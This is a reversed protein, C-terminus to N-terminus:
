RVAGAGEAQAVLAARSEPDVQPALLMGDIAPIPDSIVIIDGAALGKKIVVFDTQSFAVEVPRIRLRNEGDVVYVTNGHLASRPVVIQGPRPRGRLEVEVFMNKSLPPRVGPVVHRYPDDVAVIVGVTRTDPDITDNMRTFRAPWEATVSSGRLRVKASIGLLDPLRAMIDDTNEALELGPPILNILRGMPVQATIEAVDISDVVALVKGQAAFQTQEVNVEAIRSDFPAVITTYELNLRSSSLQAEYQGKQAILVDREAPMLNLSNKLTQLSQRGVLVTREQQDVAAQSITNRKLLRTKRQLDKEALDLSRQEIKLSNRTNSQRATLENIQARVSRINADNQAIALQYSTPDIRLLVQGKS